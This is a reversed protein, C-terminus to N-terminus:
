MRLYLTKDISNLDSRSVIEDANKYNEKTNFFDEYQISKINSFIGKRTIVRLDIVDKTIDMLEKYFFDYNGVVCESKSWFHGSIYPKFFYDCGIMYAKKFGMYIALGIMTTLASEVFSSSNSFDCYDLSIPHKDFNHIFRFNIKDKIFIYNTANVFHIYGTNKFGTQIKYYPNKEIASAGRWIPSYLLPAANVYYNLNLSKFDKHVRLLNCGFTTKDNFLDLNFYKISDGNGFIYCEEDQHLHEFEKNEKLVNKTLKKLITRLM